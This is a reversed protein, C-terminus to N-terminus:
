AHLEGRLGDLFARWRDAARDQEWTRARPLYSANKATAAAVTLPGQGLRERHQWRAFGVTLRGDPMRDLATFIPDHSGGTAHPLYHQLGRRLENQMADTWVLAHQQAWRWAAAEGSTNILAHDRIVDPWWRRARDTECHGLEHLLVAIARESTLAPVDVIRKEVLARGGTSNWTRVTIKLTAALDLAHQRLEYLSTV